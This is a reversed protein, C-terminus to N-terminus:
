KQIRASVYRLGGMLCDRAGRRLIYQSRGNASDLSSMAAKKTLTRHGVFSLPQTHNLFALRTHKWRDDRTAIYQGHHASNIVGSCPRFRQLTAHHLEWSSARDRQRWSVCFAMDLWTLDLKIILKAALTASYGHSFSILVYTSICNLYLQPHFLVYCRLCLKLIISICSAIYKNYFRVCM